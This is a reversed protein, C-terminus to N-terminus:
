IVSNMENEIIKKAKKWGLLCAIVSVANRGKGCM